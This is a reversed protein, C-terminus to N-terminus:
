LDLGLYLGTYEGAIRESRFGSRFLYIFWIYM